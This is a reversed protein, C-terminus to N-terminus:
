SESSGTRSRLAKYKETAEKDAVTRIDRTNLLDVKKRDIGEGFRTRLGDFRSALEEVPCASNVKMHYLFTELETRLRVFHGKTDSWDKVRDSVKLAVHIISLISAAGALLLWTQKWGPQSWVIWGAVASGSSFLAAFIKTFEDVKQWRSILIGAEIESFYAERYTELASQRLSERNEAEIEATRAYACAEITMRRVEYVIKQENWSAPPRHIKLFVSVKGEGWKSKGYAGMLTSFYVEKEKWEQSVLMALWSNNYAENVEDKFEAFPKQTAVEWTHEGKGNTDYKLVSNHNYPSMSLDIFSLISPSQHAPPKAQRNRRGIPAALGQM